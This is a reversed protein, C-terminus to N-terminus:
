QDLAGMVSACWRAIESALVPGGSEAAAREGACAHVYAAVAAADFMSESRALCAAVVGSLVDGSGATAMYQSGRAIIGHRGSGVVLTGAGKLVAVCGFRQSLECAASFRDAQVQEVSCRLLAAAEGPHPTIVAQVGSLQQSNAAVHFLADADVVARRGEARVLELMAGVFERVGATRGLGPGIVVVDAGRVASALAQADRGDLFEGDGQVTVNMCEPLFGVGSWSQRWVRSVLGAGSHLAGLAALLPAGPMDASGGVVLVRGVDGKHGDVRRRLLRPRAAGELLSFQVDAGPAIGIPATVIEGCAARGPFQMCGRKIFEIAVTLDASVHAEALAGTDASVGTPIDVAVVRLAPRRRKEAALASVQEAVEVPLAQRQGTGLIADVVVAASALWGSFDDRSCERLLGQSALADPARGVVMASDFKRMQEICDPSYKPSSVVTATVAVGRSALLRAVVLGDGGNNGPGCLVLVRGHSSGLVAQVSAAVAAGAREMLELSSIGASITRQDLRAMEAGSPALWSAADNSGVSFPAFSGSQVRSM